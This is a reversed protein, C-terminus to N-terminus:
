LLCGRAFASQVITGQHLITHGSYGLFLRHCFQMCTAMERRKLRITQSAKDLKLFGQLAGRFSAEFPRGSRAEAESGRLGRRRFENGSPVMITAGSTSPLTSCPRSCQEGPNCLTCTTQSIRAPEKQKWNFEQLYAVVLTCVTRSSEKQCDRQACAECARRKSNLSPSTLTTYGSVGRKVCRREDNQKKRIEVSRRYVLSSGFCNLQM